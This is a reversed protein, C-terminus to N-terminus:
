PAKEALAPLSIERIRGLIEAGKDKLMRLNKLLKM